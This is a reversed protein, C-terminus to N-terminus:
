RINLSAQSSDLTLEVESGKSYSPRSDALGGLVGVRRLWSERHGRPLGFGLAWPLGSAPALRGMSVWCGYLLARFAALPEGEVPSSLEGQLWLALAQLAWSLCGLHWALEYAAGIPMVLKCPAQFRESGLCNPLCYPLRFM